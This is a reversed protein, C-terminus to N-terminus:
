ARSPHSRKAGRERCMLARLRHIDATPVAIREVQSHEPTIYWYSLLPNAPGIITGVLEDQDYTVREDRKFGMFMNSGDKDTVGDPADQTVHSGGGRSRLLPFARRKLSIKIEPGSEQITERKDNASRQSEQGRNWLPHPEWYSTPVFAQVFVASPAEYSEAITGDENTYSVLEEPLFRVASWGDGSKDCCYVPQDKRLNAYTCTRYDFKEAAVPIQALGKQHPGM